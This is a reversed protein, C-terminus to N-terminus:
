TEPSEQTSQVHVIMSDSLTGHTSEPSMSLARDYPHYNSSSNGFIYPDRTEYPYNPNYYHVVSPGGQPGFQEGMGSLAEGRGGMRAVRFSSYVLLSGHEGPQSSDHIQTSEAPPGDHGPVSGGNQQSNSMATPRVTSYTSTTTNKIDSSSVLTSTGSSLHSAWLWLLM